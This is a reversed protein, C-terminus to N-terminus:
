RIMNILTPEKRFQVISDVQQWIETTHRFINLAILADKADPLNGHELQTTLFQISEDTRLTAITLLFSARLEADRTRQWRSKIAAFAAPIRSEGLALAALEQIQENGTELANVVIPAQDASLQLLSIFCESLVQPEADGIHVKFRLLPIGAPNQSYGIARAAGVRADHEKDALLDALEIMVSHYNAQVLGLACLSRLPPATDVTKGWVPEPQVHRIGSLFLDADPQELQYLTNAIVWKAKCSPDRSAGNTLLREFTSSLDPLLQTLRYRVILKTASAIVVPQDGRVIKRLAMVDSDSLEELRGIIKIQELANELQRTRAM